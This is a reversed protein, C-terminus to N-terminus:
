LILKLEEVQSESIKCEEAIEQIPINNKLMNIIKQALSFGQVKGQALGQAKGQALGRAEGEARGEEYLQTDYNLFDKYFVIFGEKEIIGQLYSQEMCADRAKVFAEDPTVGTEMIEDYVKYFYSYGALANDPAHDALQEFRIDIINVKMEIRIDNYELNFISCTEKLPATGNYAVYFEPVPLDPVKSQGYLNINNKKIWLQLLEIYYLFLRFAININITSQHEILIILRNDKTIYSVDNRRIRKAISSDLDFLMLDDETLQSYGNQCHRLLCIFHRVVKFIGRFLTDKHQIKIRARQKKGAM